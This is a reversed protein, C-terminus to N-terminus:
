PWRTDNEVPIVVDGAKIIDQAIVNITKFSALHSSILNLIDKQAKKVHKGLARDITVDDIIDRYHEKADSLGQDSEAYPYTMGEEIVATNIIGIKLRLAHTLISGSMDVVPKVVVVKGNIFKRSGQNEILDRYQEQTIEVADVPIFINKIVVKGDIDKIPPYIDDNYFGLPTGDSDSEVYIKMIMNGKIALLSGIFLNVQLM